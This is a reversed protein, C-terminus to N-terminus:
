RLHAGHSMHNAQGHFHPTMLGGVLIVLVIAAIAIGYVWRPVRTDYGARQRSARDPM